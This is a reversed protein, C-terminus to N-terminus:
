NRSRLIAAFIRQVVVRLADAVDAEWVPIRVETPVRGHRPVNTCDYSPQPKLDPM